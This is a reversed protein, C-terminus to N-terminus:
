ETLAQLVLGVAFVFLRALESAFLLLSTPLGTSHTRLNCLGRKFDEFRLISPLVTALLVTGPSDKTDVQM